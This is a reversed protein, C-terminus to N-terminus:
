WLTDCTVRGSGLPDYHSGMFSLTAAKGNDLLVRTPLSTRNPGNHHLVTTPLETQVM